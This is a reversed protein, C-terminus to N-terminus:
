ASRHPTFRDYVSWGDHVLTGSWDPGLLQEAPTRSRTPDIVYCTQRRGVFAHLWATRGGVRWGTEDSVVQSSGRIEQRLQEYAPACREATRAISRAILSSFNAAPVRFATQTM